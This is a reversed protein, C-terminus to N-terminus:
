HTIALATEKRVVPAVKTGLLEIARMIQAHTLVRNDLLITLRSFGGLLKHEKIIKEAVAEPAGVVLAGHPSVQADFQPRTPAPWGREKGIKGFADRYAPWFTERAAEDTDALFGINHIGVTLKEPAHGAQKGAERYLDILKRFPGAQGGIIAVM